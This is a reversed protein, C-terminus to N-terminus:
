FIYKEPIRDFNINSSNLQSLANDNSEIYPFSSQAYANKNFSETNNDSESDEIVQFYENYFKKEVPYEVINEENIFAANTSYNIFDAFQGYNYASFKYKQTTRQSELIGYKYGDLKKHTFDSNKSNFGYILNNIAKDRDDVSFWEEHQYSDRIEYNPKKVKFLISGNTIDDTEINIENNKYINELNIDFYPVDSESILNLDKFAKLINEEYVRIFGTNPLFASDDEFIKSTKTVSNQTKFGLVEIYPMILNTKIDRYKFLMVVDTKTMNVINGSNKTYYFCNTVYIKENRKIQLSLDARRNIENKAINFHIGDDEFFDYDLYNQYNNQVLVDVDPQNKELIDYLYIPNATTKPNLLKFRPICINHSIDFIQHLSRSVPGLSIVDGGGFGGGITLEGYTYVSPEIRIYNLDAEFNNTYFTTAQTQNLSGQSSTQIVQIAADKIAKTMASMLRSSSTFSLGSGAGGFLEPRDDSIINTIVQPKEHGDLFCVFIDKNNAYDGTNFLNESFSDIGEAGYYLQFNLIGYNEIRVGIKNKSFFLNNSDSEIELVNEKFDSGYLSKFYTLLAKNAQNGSVVLCTNGGVQQLSFVTPLFLQETTDEIIQNDYKLFNYNANNNIKLSSRLYDGANLDFITYEWIPIGNGVGLTSISKSNNSSYSLEDILINFSDQLRSTPSVIRKDEGAGVVYSASSLSADISNSISRYIQASSNNLVDTYFDIEDYFLVYDKQENSEFTSSLQRSTLYFSVDFGGRQSVYESKLRKNKLSAYSFFNPWVSDYFYKKRRPSSSNELSLLRGRYSDFDQSLTIFDYKFLNKRDLIVRNSLNLDKKSQSQKNLFSNKEYTFDEKILDRKNTAELVKKVSRTQNSINKEKNDVYEGILTIDLKDHMQVFFPMLDGNGTVSTGIIIEDSPKLLYNSKSVGKNKNFETDFFKYKIINEYDLIQNQLAISQQNHVDIDRIKAEELANKDIIRESFKRLINGNYPFKGELVNNYIRRSRPSTVDDFGADAAIDSGFITLDETFTENFSVTDSTLYGKTKSVLEAVVKDGKTLINLDFISDIVEASSNQANPLIKRFFTEVFINKSFDIAEEITYDSSTIGSVRTHIAQSINLTDVVNWRDFAQGAINRVTTQHSFIDSDSGGSFIGTVDSVFSGNGGSATFTKLGGDGLLNNDDVVTIDTEAGNNIVNVLQLNTVGRPNRLNVGGSFNTDESKSFQTFGDTGEALSATYDVKNQFDALTNEIHFYINNNGNDLTIEGNNIASLLMNYTLNAVGGTSDPIVDILYLQDDIKKDFALRIKNNQASNDEADHITFIIRFENVGVDDRTLFFDTAIEIVAPEGNSGADNTVSLVMNQQNGTVEVVPGNPLDQDGDQVDIEVQHGNKSRGSDDQTLVISNLNATAAVGPDEDFYFGIGKNGNVVYNISLEYGKIANSFAAGDLSFSSGDPHLNDIIINNIDQLNFATNLTSLEGEVSIINESSNSLVHYQSEDTYSNTHYTKIDSEIKIDIDNYSYQFNDQNLAGPVDLTIEKDVSSSDGFTFVEPTNGRKTIVASSMCVLERISDDQYIADHSSPYADYMYKLVVGESGDFGTDWVNDVEVKKIQRAGANFADSLKIFKNQKKYDIKNDISSSITYSDDNKTKIQIVESSPLETRIQAQNSFINGFYSSLDGSQGLDRKEFYYNSSNIVEEKHSFANDKRNNLLFFSLGIADYNLANDPSDWVDWDRWFNKDQKTALNTAGNNASPFMRQKIAANFNATVKTKIVVKEVIFDRDIYNSMQLLHNNHPQWNYKNPFGYSNTPTLINSYNAFVPVDEPFYTGASTDWNGTSFAKDVRYAPSVCIPRTLLNEQIDNIKQVLNLSGDSVFNVPFINDSSNIGSINKHNTDIYEWENDAHNFYATPIYHNTIQLGTRDNTGVEPDQSLPEAIYFRMANPYSITDTSGARHGINTNIFYPNNGTFDLSITIQDKNKVYQTKSNLNSEKSFSNDEDKFYGFNETYPKYDDSITKEELFRDLSDQSIDQAKTFSDFGITNPRDYIGSNSLLLQRNGETGVKLDVDVNRADEANTDIIYEDRLNITTLTSDPLILPIGLVTNTNTNQKFICTLSDDFILKSSSNIDHTEPIGGPLFSKQNLQKKFSNSLVGSKTTTGTTNQPTVDIKKIRKKAM